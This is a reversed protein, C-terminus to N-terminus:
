PTKGSNADSMLEKVKGSIAEAWIDFGKPALHLFDKMVETSISKDPELFKAGIDMYHVSGGAFKSILANVAEKKERGPNPKEGTPFIGLLLIKAQPQKSQIL